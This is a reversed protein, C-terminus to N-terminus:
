VSLNGMRNAIEDADLGRKELGEQLIKKQKSIAEEAAKAETEAEEASITNAEAKAKAAAAKEKTDAIKNKVQRELLLATLKQRLNKNAGVLVLLAIVVIAVVGFVIWRWYKKV